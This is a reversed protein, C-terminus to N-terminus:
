IAYGIRTDASGGVCRLGDFAETAYEDPCEYHIIFQGSRRKITRTTPSLPPLPPLLKISESDAFSSKRPTQHSAEHRLHSRSKARQLHPLYPLPPLVDEYERESDTLLASSSDCSSESPTESLESSESTPTIPSHIFVDEEDSEVIPPFVLHVPINDGLKRKLRRMKERRLSADSPITFTPIPVQPDLEIYSSNAYVGFPDEKEFTAYLIEDPSPPTSEVISPPSGPISELTPQTTALRRAGNALKKTMGLRLLPPRRTSLRARWANESSDTTSSSSVSSSSSHSSISIRSLPAGDSESDSTDNSAKKPKFSWTRQKVKKVASVFHQPPHSALCTHNLNSHALHTITLNM